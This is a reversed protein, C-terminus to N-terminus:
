VRSSAVTRLGTKGGHGEIELRSSTKTIFVFGLDRAGSVLAAEDPSEAKYELKGTTKNRDALVSHCLAIAKWFEVLPGRLPGAQLDEVLNPSILTVADEDLWRNDWSEKMLRIMNEKLEVMHEAEEAIDDEAEEMVNAAGDASPRAVGAQRIKAGREAETGGEGYRIGGIACRKFEM